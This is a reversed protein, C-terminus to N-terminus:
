SEKQISGTVLLEIAKEVRKRNSDYRENIGDIYEKAIVDLEEKKQSAIKNWIDQVEKNDKFCQNGIDRVINFEDEYEKMVDKYSEDLNKLIERLFGCIYDADKTTLVINGM